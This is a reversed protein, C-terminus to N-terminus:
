IVKPLARHSVLGTRALRCLEFYMIRFRGTESHLPDALDRWIQSWVSKILALLSNGSGRSSAAKQEAVAFLTLITSSREKEEQLGM